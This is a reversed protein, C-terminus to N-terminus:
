SHQSNTNSQWKRQPKQFVTGKFINKENSYTRKSIQLSLKCISILLNLTCCLPAATTHLQPSSFWTNMCFVAVMSWRDLRSCRSFVAQFYVSPEPELTTNTCFPWRSANNNHHPCETNPEACISHCDPVQLGFAGLSDVLVPSVRCVIITNSLVPMQHGWGPPSPSSRFDRSLFILWLLTTKSSANHRWSFTQQMVTEKKNLKFKLICLVTKNVM